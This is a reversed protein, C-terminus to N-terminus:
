RQERNSMQSPNRSAATRGASKARSNAVLTWVGWGILLSFATTSLGFVALYIYGWAPSFSRAQEYEALVNPIFSRLLYGALAVAVLFFVISFRGTWTMWADEREDIEHEQGCAITNDVAIHRGSCGQGM